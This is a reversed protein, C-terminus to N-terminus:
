GQYKPEEGKVKSPLPPCDTSPIYSNTSRQWRYHLQPLFKKLHPLNEGVIDTLYDSVEEVSDM